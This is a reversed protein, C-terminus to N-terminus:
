NLTIRKNMEKTWKLVVYDMWRRDGFQSKKHSIYGMHGGGQPQCLDINRSLNKFSEPSVFPDDLSCLISTPIEINKLYNKSSCKDYYDGVDKYGGVPATYSVDFDWITNLNQSPDIAKPFKKMLAQAQIGILKMYYRNFLWCSPHTSINHSAVSLDIPPNVALAGILGSPIGRGEGLYKLLINGSLSFGIVLLCPYKELIFRIMKDIDDSSGGNWLSSSLGMGKGSGRHNIMFVGYGYLWLKWAIRRIYGSESCGGMGHALMVVPKNQEVSKIEYLISKVNVDLDITYSIKEPLVIPNGPLQSGAITQFIGGRLAPHPTFSELLDDIKLFIVGKDSIKIL